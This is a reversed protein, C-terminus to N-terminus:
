SCPPITCDLAFVEVRGERAAQSSRILRERLENPKSPPTKGRGESRLKKNAPVDDGFWLVLYIGRREAGYDSSYLRDLQTDAARWLEPHWQGKVETPLRLGAIQAMIDARNDRAMHGEPQLDIREPYTGLMTLIHDRCREEGHPKQADNYFGRWSDAPDASIRRQVEELLGLMTAQLDAPTRPSQEEVIARLDSLRPSRYRVETLKRQQEAMMSQFTRTFSDAPAQVLRLLGVAAEDTAMDALRGAVSTLFQSADWPMEDGNVVGSPHEVVPFSARFTQVLWVLQDVSLMPTIGHGQYGGIRRRIAWIWRPESVAIRALRDRQVDFDAIFAVANWLRTRDGTMEANLRSAALRRLDDQRRSAILRDIMHEEPDIPMDPYQALWGAALNAARKNDASQHMLIYLQDVHTRGNVLQREIWAELAPGKLGRAQMQADIAERLGTLKAHTDISSVYLDYFAATLRDNSVDVLGQGTRVREALAAIIIYIANWTESKCHSEAVQEASPPSGSRLFSEFGKAAAQGLEDGLWASLRDRPPANEDMDNFLSLYAKAPGIVAGYEGRRLAEINKIYQQRHEQWEVARKVDRRRQEAEQKIQWDPKEPHALKDIWILMDPRNAVFRKAFDRVEVGETESHRTMVIIERWREDNRDSPDLLGLLILVDEPTATFGHSRSILRYHREWVTESGPQDLLVLRQGARRFIDDQAIFDHVKKREDRGYGHQNDFPKPWSWLRIADVPAAALRKGIAKYGLDTLENNSRREHQNGVAPIQTTLEDLIADLREIPLEDVVRGLVFGSSREHQAYAIAVRVIEADSYPGVGTADIVEMALRSDDESTRRHLEAVIATWDEGGLMVLADMARLRHALPGTADMGIRRLELRLAEAITAGVIAELLLLRLSPECTVDNLLSRLPEILAPHALGKLSYQQWGQRFHPNRTALAQLAALLQGARTADLVDAEGYEIVAMPDAAIVAAALRPDHHALWAHLGRLSAPVAGHSQFLALLRKRKLVTNAQRALWRSGLYEGISRHWYSFRDAAGATAFLRSGLIKDLRRGGPLAAAEALPIEDEGPNAEQSILADSGTLILSAFAAGAADLATAEDLQLDARDDRHEKRLEEVARGFLEARGSPLAGKRAVTAVMKLTQPNNLLGDLNAEHFHRIVADAKSVDDAFEAVLLQRIDHSTLPELHLVLLRRNEYQEGIASANAASRWDAVRCSLVFDPYDLDGLRQLVLDVADGEGRISLEDLADIVITSAAGMLRARDGRFNNLKRATAFVHGANGALWRLLQTKGMGPEGLVVIPGELGVLGEQGITVPGDEAQHWLTRPLFQQSM